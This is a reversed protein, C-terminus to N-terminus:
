LRTLALFRAAHNLDAEKAAALADADEDAGWQERQWIDDVRSLAWATGADIAGQAVALGLVLSGTMGVLDHLATLGFDDFAAVARHMQALTLPAQAVPMVGVTTVLPAALMDRAWDLWPDWAAAQLGVLEVPSAARYCILDSGGYAAILAIVEDRQAGVKDLAANASRTVPMTRPDVTAGQADWEAAVAHALAATPLILPAKAPTRVRRGDLEVTFGGAVPVVAVGTWFRRATWGGSM